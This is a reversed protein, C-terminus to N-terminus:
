KRFPDLFEDWVEVTINFTEEKEVISPAHIWLNHYRNNLLLDPKIYFSLWSFTVSLILVVKAILILKRQLASHNPPRLKDKKM